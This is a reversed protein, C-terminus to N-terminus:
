VHVCMLMTRVHIQSSVESKISSRPMYRCKKKGFNQFKFERSAEKPTHSLPEYNTLFLFNFVHFFISVHRAYRKDRRLVDRHCFMYKESEFTPYCTTKSEGRVGRGLLERRAFYMPAWPWTVPRMILHLRENSHDRRLSLPSRGRGHM